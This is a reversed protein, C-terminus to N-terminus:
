DGITNFEERERISFCYSDGLIDTGDIEVTPFRIWFHNENLHFDEENGYKKIYEADTYFEFPANAKLLAAYAGYKKIRESADDVKWYKYEVVSNELFSILEERTKPFKM